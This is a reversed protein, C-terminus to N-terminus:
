SALTCLVSGLLLTWVFRTDLAFTRGEGSSRVLTNVAKSAEALTATPAGFPGGFGGSHLSPFLSISQTPEIPYLPDLMAHNLEAFGVSINPSVRYVSYVNKLFAARNNTKLRSRLGGSTVSVRHGM